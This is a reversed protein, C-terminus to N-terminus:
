DVYASSTTAYDRVCRVMHTNPVENRDTNLNGRYFYGSTIPDADFRRIYKTRAMCGTMSYGGEASHKVMLGFERENPVRWGGEGVNEGDQAYYDHCLSGEQVQTLTFLQNGTADSVFNKAVQFAVPLKDPEENRIHSSYEGTVTSTRVSEKGLTKLSIVKTAPDIETTATPGESSNKLTRACRVGLLGTANTSSGGYGFLWNGAGSYMGFSVGEDIYWVRQQKKLTSTFYGQYDIFLKADNGLSPYGYWITLTQQLAPLYWKIEDDDITGNGNEDRNRSLCQSRAYNIKMADSHLLTSNDFHGFHESNVYTSWRRDSLIASFNSRGNTESSSDIYSDDVYKTGNWTVASFEELIEIGFPNFPNLSTYTDSDELALNYMSKISQQRISFIPTVAYSSKGDPSVAITTALTMEREPANVFQALKLDKYYYEDLFAATYYYEGDVIYYDGGNAGNKRMDALLGFINTSNARNYSPLSTPSGPKIFKIWSVDAASTNSNKTYIFEGKPTDLKLSYEEASTGSPMKVMITEFHSDVTINTTGASLNILTGEAGSDYKGYDDSSVSAETYISKVGTINVNYIYKTNRRISYNDYGGAETSPDKLYATSFDGLHITYSVEGSVQTSSIEDSALASIPGNYIGKIVVYTGNEPANLFSQDSASVHKERDKQTAATNKANQVNELLYFSMGTEGSMDVNLKDSFDSDATAVSGLSGPFSGKAGTWGSREFLTCKKACNYVSYTKPQFSIGSEATLNFIIKATIRRLHINDKFNNNGSEKLTIRGDSGYVGSMLLSEEIMQIDENSKTILVNQLQALSLKELKSLEVDGFTSSNYNAVAYLFYNGSTLGADEPINATYIYNTNSQTNSLVLNSQSLRIVKKPKDLYNGDRYFFLAIESVKTEQLDTARTSIEAPAPTSIRITLSTPIGEQVTEVREECSYLFSAAVIAALSAYLKAFKKMVCESEILHLMMKSPSISM